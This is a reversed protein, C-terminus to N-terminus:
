WEPAAPCSDALTRRLTEQDIEVPEGAAEVHTVGTASDWIALHGSRTLSVLCRHPSRKPDPGELWSASVRVGEEGAEVLAKLELLSVGREGENVDFVMGDALDYVRQATNEGKETMAVLDWGAARMLAEAKDAIAFFQAKTLIPLAELPVDAPSQDRWVYSRLVTGDREVTHPGFAGMQRASAGGFIELVHSGDDLTEGAKVWRRTHIRGFPEETRVVWAEKARGSTRALWPVREDALEPVIDMAANALADVLAQDNIDIDIVALGNEVRLGTADDGHRRSWSAIAGSTIEVTPWGKFFTRKDRNPIPSYGNALLQLRLAEIRQKAAERRDPQPRLQSPRCLKENM